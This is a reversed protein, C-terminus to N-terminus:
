AQAAGQEAAYGELLAISKAFSTKMDYHWRLGAATNKLAKLEDGVVFGAGEEAKRGESINLLIDDVVEDFPVREQPAAIACDEVPDTALVLEILVTYAERAAGPYPVRALRAVDPLLPLAAGVYDTLDSLDVGKGNATRAQIPALAAAFRARIDSALAPVATPYMAELLRTATPSITPDAFLTELLQTQLAPTLVGVADKPETLADNM